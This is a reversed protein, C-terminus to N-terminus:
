LDSSLTLGPSEWEGFHGPPEQPHLRIMRYPFQRSDIEPIESDDILCLSITPGTGEGM